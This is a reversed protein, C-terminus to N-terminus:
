LGMLICAAPGLPSSLGQGVLGAVANFVTALGTEALEATAGVLANAIDSVVPVSGRFEPYYGPTIFTPGLAAPGVNCILTKHKAMEIHPNTMFVSATLARVVAKSRYEYSVEPTSWSWRCHRFPDQWTPCIGDTWGSTAPVLVEKHWDGECEAMATSVMALGFGAFSGKVTADGHDLAITLHSGGTALVSNMPIRLLQGGACNAATEIAFHLTGAFGSFNASGSGSLRDTRGSVELHAGSVIPANVLELEQNNGVDGKVALKGSADLAVHDFYERREYHPPMTEGPPHCIADLSTAQFYSPTVPTPTDSDTEPLELSSTIHDGHLALTAEKLTIAQSLDFTATSFALNVDRAELNTLDMGAATVVPTGNQLGAISLPGALSGDFALDNPRQPDRPRTAHTGGLSVQDASLTGQGALRDIALSLHHISGAPDTLRIGAIDVTAGPDVARFAGDAALAGKVFQLDGRMLCYAFTAEGQSTLDIRARFPNAAGVRLIPDGLSFASATLLVVGSRDAPTIRLPTPNTASLTAGGFLPRTSALWPSTAIAAAIELQLDNVAVDLHSRQPDTLNLTCLARLFLRRLSGTLAVAPTQDSIELTGAQAPADIRIPLTLEETTVTEPIDLHLSRLYRIGGTLLSDTDLSGALRFAERWAGHLRLTAQSLAGPPLLFALIPMEPRSWRFHGDLASFSLTLGSVELDGGVLLQDGRSLACRSATLQAGEVDLAQVSAESPSHAAIARAAAWRFTSPGAALTVAGNHLEITDAAGTASSLSATMAGDAVTLLLRGARLRPQRLRAPGVALGAGSFDVQRAALSANWLSAAGSSMDVHLVVNEQDPTPTLTSTAAAGGALEIRADVLRRNWTTMEFTGELSARRTRFLTLNRMWLRSGALNMTGGAIRHLGSTVRGLEVHLDRPEVWLQKGAASKLLYGDIRLEKVTGAAIVAIGSRAAQAFVEQTKPLGDYDVPASFIAFTKHRSTLQLRYSVRIWRGDPQDKFDNPFERAEIGELWLPGILVSSARAEHALFTSWFLLLLTRGTRV